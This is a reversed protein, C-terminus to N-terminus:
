MRLMTEEHRAYLVPDRAQIEKALELSVRRCRDELSSFEYRHNRYFGDGASPRLRFLKVLQACARRLALLDDVKGLEVVDDLPLRDLLLGIALFEDVIDPYILPNGPQDIQYNSLVIMRKLEAALTQLSLLLTTGKHFRSRAETAQSRKAELYSAFWVGGATVIIAAISGWAQVWAACESGSIGAALGFCTEASAM